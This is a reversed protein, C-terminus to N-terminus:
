TGAGKGREAIRRDLDIYAFYNPNLAKLKQEIRIQEDLNDSEIAKDHDDLLKSIEESWARTEDFADSILIQEIPKNAYNGSEEEVTCNQHSQDYKCVFVRAGPVSALTFPSHTTAIIQLNPFIERINPLFRKQWAPHLHNEIEDILLLGPINHAEKPDTKLLTHVSFMKGLLSIMRQIFYANGSSINAIPVIHGSQSVRPMLDARKVPKLEGDLTGLQVIKEAMQYFAEGTAKEDPDRSDRFYDYYTILETIEANRLTGQLSNLLFVKHNPARLAPIEYTGMGLNARWYDVIWPPCQALNSEIDPRLIIKLIGPDTIGASLYYSSPHSFRGENCRIECAMNELFFEARLEFPINERWIQRELYAYKLGFAGRIADILISKGTGNLGTILAVPVPDGPTDLFQLEARDFPGINELSLKLLRM